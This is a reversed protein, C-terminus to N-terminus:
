SVPPSKLFSLGEGDELVGRGEHGMLFAPREPNLPLSEGVAVPIDRRGLTDLLKRAMRARLHADAWVTTVAEIEVEPWNALLAIAFADDIDTGIDTDLIIREAM